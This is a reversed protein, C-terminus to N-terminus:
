AGNSAELLRNHIRQALAAIEVWKTWMAGVIDAPITVQAGAARFRSAIDEVRRDSESELAGIEVAFLPALVRIAGSDEVGTAIRLVGGLAANGFLSVLPEVHRM